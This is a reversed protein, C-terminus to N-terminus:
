RLKGFAVFDPPLASFAEAGTLVIMAGFFLSTTALTIIFSHVGSRM